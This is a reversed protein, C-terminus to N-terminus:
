EWVLRMKDHPTQLGDQDKLKEFMQQTYQNYGHCPRKSKVAGGVRLQKGQQECEAIMWVDVVNMEQNSETIAYLPFTQTGMAAFLENGNVTQEPADRSNDELMMMDLYVGKWLFWGYQSETQQQTDNGNRIRQQQQLQHIVSDQNLIDSSTLTPASLLPIAGNMTPYQM